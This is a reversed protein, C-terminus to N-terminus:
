QILSSIKLHYSQYPTLIWSYLYSISSLMLFCVVWNFFPCFFQISMKGFLFFGFIDLLCMFLHEVSSIMLWVCILVVILYWRVDKLIGTVLFFIFLLYQHLHPSFAVRRCQQHFHLNSCGSHFVTYLSRLFSFISSNHFFTFTTLWEIM